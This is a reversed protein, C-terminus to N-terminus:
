VSASRRAWRSTPEQRTPSCTQSKPRGTRASPEPGVQRATAKFNIEGGVQSGPLGNGVGRQSKWGRGLRDPRFDRICRGAEIAHPCHSISTWGAYHDFSCTARDKREIWRRRPAVPTQGICGASDNDRAISGVEFTVDCRRVGPRATRRKSNVRRVRRTSTNRLGNPVISTRGLGPCRGCTERVKAVSEKTERLGHLETFRALAGLNDPSHLPITGGSAMPPNDRRCLGPLSRRM